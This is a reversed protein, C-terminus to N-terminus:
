ILRLIRRGFKEATGQSDINTFNLLLASTGDSGITWDTLAEGYVGDERM